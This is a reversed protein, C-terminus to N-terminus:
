EGVKELDDPTPSETVTLAQVRRIFEDVIRNPIHREAHHKRLFETLACLERATMQRLDPAKPLEVMLVELPTTWDIPPLPENM